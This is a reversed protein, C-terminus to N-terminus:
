NEGKDFLYENHLLEDIIGTVYKVESKVRARIVAADSTKGVEFSDRKNHIAIHIRNDIFCLFTQGNAATDAALIYDMFHPTLIYFATHPSETLINFRENFVTNETLADSKKGSGKILKGFGSRECVRLSSEVSKKMECVLWQGKFALTTSKKTNGDEDTHETVNELKIDSFEFNVGKYKGVVLDSGHCENWEEILDSHNITSSSVHAEPNYSQVEFVESIADQTINISVLNKATSDKLFLYFLCALGGIIAAVGLLYIKMQFFVLMLIFAAVAGSTVMMKNRKHAALKASLEADSLRSPATANPQASFNAGCTKCSPTGPKCPTQCSPCPKWEKGIIISNNNKDHKIFSTKETENKM